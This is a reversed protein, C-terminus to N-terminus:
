WKKGSLSGAQLEQHTERNNKQKKEGTGSHRALGALGVETKAANGGARGAEKGGEVSGLQRGLVLNARNTNCLPLYKCLESVNKKKGRKKKAHSFAATSVGSSRWGVGQCVAPQAAAVTAAIVSIIVGTM